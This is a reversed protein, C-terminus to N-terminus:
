QRRRRRVIAHREASELLAELDERSLDFSDGAEALAADIDERLLRPAIAPAKPRHPYSHQSFRHFVVGAVVLLMTDLATSAGLAVWSTAPGALAPILAYAGGPPHLCRLLSMAVIAAGLALGALAPNAGMLAVGAMGIALSVLSGGIVPWPQSLPSSPLAFVLIASAGIPALLYPLPAIPIAGCIMAIGAVALMSGACAFLREPWTAGALILRIARM